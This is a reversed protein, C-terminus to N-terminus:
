SIFCSIIAYTGFLVLGGLISYVNKCMGNFTNMAQM